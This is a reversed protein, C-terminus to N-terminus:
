HRHGSDGGWEATLQQRTTMEATASMQNIATQTTWTLTLASAVPGHSAEAGKLPDRNVELDM